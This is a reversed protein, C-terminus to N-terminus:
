LLREGPQPDGSDDREGEDQNQDVSSALRACGGGSFRAASSIPSLPSTGARLDPPRLALPTSRPFVQSAVAKLDTWRQLPHHVVPRTRSTLIREGDHHYPVHRDIEWRPRLTILTVHSSGAVPRRGDARAHAVVVYEADAFWAARRPRPAGCMAPVLTVNCRVAVGLM